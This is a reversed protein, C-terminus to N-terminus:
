AAEGVFDLQEQGDTGSLGDRVAQIFESVTGAMLAFEADRAAAQDEINMAYLEDALVDGFKVGRFSLDDGMLFTLKGAWGMGLKTCRKGTELLQQVEDDDLDVDKCRIVSGTKLPNRLECQRSISFGDPVELWSKMWATMRDEVLAKVKLPMAPLTGLANRIMSILEEAKNRSSSNVVLYKLDATFFAYLYDRKVFARPLLEVLVEDRIQNRERKYVKRADRAEIEEVKEQVADNLVSAPLVKSETQLCVMLNGNAAHVLLGDTSNDFPSVFGSVESDFSGCSVARSSDLAHELAEATLSPANVHYILLNKFFM